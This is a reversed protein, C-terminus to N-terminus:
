RLAALRERARDAYVSGPFRALLDLWTKKEEQSRGMHMLATARGFLAEEALAPQAMTAPARSLMRDFQQLAGAPDNARELLLRGLSATAVQAEPSAPYRRELEAYARRAGVTDGAKRRANAESFLQYATPANESPARVRRANRVPKPADIAVTQPEVPPSEVSAVLAPAANAVPGAGAPSKKQLAPAAAQPAPRGAVIFAFHMLVNHVAPVVRATAMGATLIAAVLLAALRRRPPVSARWARREKSGDPARAARIGDVLRALVQTDGSQASLRQDFGRSLFLMARCAECGALHREFQSRELACISGSRARAFINDPCSQPTSV